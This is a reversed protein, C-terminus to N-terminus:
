LPLSWYRETQERILFVAQEHCLTYLTWTFIHFDAKYTRAFFWFASKNKTTSEEEQLSAHHHFFVM